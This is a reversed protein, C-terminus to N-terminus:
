PGQSITYEVTGTYLGVPTDQSVSVEYSAQFTYRGAGEGQKAAIIKSPREGLRIPTVQMTTPPVTDPTKSSDIIVTGKLTFNLYEPPLLFGTESVMSTARATVNWGSYSLTPDFVEITNQGTATNNATNLDIVTFDLDTASIRLSGPLVSLVGNWQVTLEPQRSRDPTQAGAQLPTLAILLLLIYAFINTKTKMM